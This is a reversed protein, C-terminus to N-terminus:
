EVTFSPNVSPVYPGETPVGRDVYASVMDVECPGGSDVVNAWDDADM